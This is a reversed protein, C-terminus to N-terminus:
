CAGVLQNLFLELNAIVSAVKQEIDSTWACFLYKVPSALRSHCQILCPNADKKEDMALCEERLLIKMASDILSSMTCNLQRLDEEVVLLLEQFREIGALFELSIDILNPTLDLCFSNISLRHFDIRFPVTPSFLSIRYLGSSRSNFDAYSLSSQNSLSSLRCISSM